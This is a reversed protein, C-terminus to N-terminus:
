VPTSVHLQEVSPVNNLVGQQALLCTQVFFLNVGNQEGYVLTYGHARGLAALALIGAGYFSTGTWRRSDQNPNVVRNENPLIEYNFEIVVVRAHFRNAQLISKWVFYDDFDIDISLLDIVAQTGYKALLDNINKSSIMERHLNISSINHGGDMMLGQWGLHERLFRTNCQQGNQVGFEVFRPPHHITGINAFIWLLVGDEGNQSFIQREHQKLETIWHSSVPGSAAKWCKSKNLYQLRHWDPFSVLIIISVVIITILILRVRTYVLIYPLLM